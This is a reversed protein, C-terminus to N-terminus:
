FTESFMEAALAHDECIDGNSDKLVPVSVKSNLQNRINRNIFSKRVEM